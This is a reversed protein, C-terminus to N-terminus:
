ANSAVPPDPLRTLSGLDVYVRSSVGSGNRSFLRRLEGSVEVRDGPGLRGAKARLRATWASCDFTDVSQSSRRRAAASRDVILRFSVIEDGSPLTRAEAVDAVRGRLLVHNDVDTM